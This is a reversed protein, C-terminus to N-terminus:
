SPMRGPAGRVTTPPTVKRKQTSRAGVQRKHRGPKATPKKEKGSRSRWPGNARAIVQPQFVKYRTLAAVDNRLGFTQLLGPSARGLACVLAGCQAGVGGCPACGHAYCGEACDQFRGSVFALGRIGFPALTNGSWKDFVPVSGASYWSAYLDTNWLLLVVAHSSRGGPTQGRDWPRRSVGYRREGEM